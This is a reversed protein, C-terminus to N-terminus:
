RGRSDIWRKKIAIGTPRSFRAETGPGDRFGMESSISPGGAVLAIATSSPDYASPLDWLLSNGYDAILLDGDAGVALSYPLTFRATPMQVGVLSKMWAWTDRAPTARLQGGIGVLRPCVDVLTVLRDDTGFTKISVAVVSHHFTDAIYVVDHKADVAVAQPYDLHYKMAAPLSTESSEDEPGVLSGISGPGSRDPSFWLIRCNGSDAIFIIPESNETEHLALGMPNELGIPHVTSEAGVIITMRADVWQHNVYEYQRIANGYYDSVFVRGKSDVVVDSPERLEPTRLTSVINSTDIVRVEKNYSDAVYVRGDRDVAIGAPGNFSAMLRNSNVNRAEGTGAFTEVFYDDGFNRLLRLASWGITVVAALM